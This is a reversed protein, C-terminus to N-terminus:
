RGPRLWLHANGCIEVEYSRVGADGGGGVVDVRLSLVTTSLEQGPSRVGSRISFSGDM